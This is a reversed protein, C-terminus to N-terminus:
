PNLKDRQAVIDVQGSCATAQQKLNDPCHCFKLVAQDDFADISPQTVGARFPLRQPTGLQANIGLGHTASSAPTPCASCVSLVGHRLPVTERRVRWPYFRKTLLLNELAVTMHKKMPIQASTAREYVKVIM